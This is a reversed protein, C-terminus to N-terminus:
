LGAFLVLSGVTVTAFFIGALVGVALVWWAAARQTALDDPGERNMWSVFGRLNM